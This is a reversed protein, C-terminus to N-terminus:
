LIPKVIQIIERNANIISDIKEITKKAYEKILIGKQSVIWVPMEIIEKAKKVIQVTDKKQQYLQLLALRPILRRPEIDQVMQYYYESSDYQRLMLFCLGCKAFVNTRSCTQLAYRYQQIAPVIQRRVMYADGFNEHYSSSFSLVPKLKQFFYVSSPDKLFGYIRNQEYYAGSCSVTKIFFFLSCFIILLYSLKTNVKKSESNVSVGIKENKWFNINANGSAVYILFLAV